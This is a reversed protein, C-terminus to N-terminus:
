HQNICFVSRTNAFNLFTMQPVYKATKHSWLPSFPKLVFGYIRTNRLGTGGEEGREGGRGGKKEEEEEQWQGM